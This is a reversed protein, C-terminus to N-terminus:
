SHGGNKPDETLAERLRERARALRSMVTGIPAGTVESIEKYSLGEFECLVIVERFEEPLNQIATQLNKKDIKEVLLEQPDFGGSQTQEFNQDSIPVTERSRNKKLWTFCTNRVVTLLWPRVNEGHFGDFFDFARLYSEQVVDEADQTNHTLWRAFSYAAGLHPLVVSEFQALTTKRRM